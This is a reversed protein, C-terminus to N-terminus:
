PVSVSVCSHGSPGVGRVLSTARPHPCGNRGDHCSPNCVGYTHFYPVSQCIRHSISPTRWACLTLTGLRRQVASDPLGSPHSDGYRRRQLAWRSDTGRARSILSLPISPRRHLRPSAHRSATFLVSTPISTPRCQCTRITHSRASRFRTPRGLPELDQSFLPRHALCSHNRDQAPNPQFAANTHLETSIPDSLHFVYRHSTQSLSKVPHRM